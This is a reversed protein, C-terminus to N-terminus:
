PNRPTGMKGSCYPGKRDIMSRVPNEYDYILAPEFDLAAASNQPHLFVCNTKNIKLPTFGIPILPELHLPVVQLDLAGFAKRPAYRSWLCAPVLNPRSGAPPFVGSVRGLTFGLIGLFDVM